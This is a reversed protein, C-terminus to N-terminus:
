DRASITPYGLDELMVQRIIRRRTVTIWLDVVWRFMEAKWLWSESGYDDLIM